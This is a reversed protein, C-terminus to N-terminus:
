NETSLAQRHLNGSPDRPSFNIRNNGLAMARVLIGNREREVRKGETLEPGGRRHTGIPVKEEAPYPRLNFNRFPGPSCFALGRPSDAEQEFGSVM